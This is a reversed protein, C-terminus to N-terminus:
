IKGKEQKKKLERQAQPLRLYIPMLQNANLTQKDKVKKEALTACLYARQYKLHTTAVELNSIDDSLLKFAIDSGDGCLIIRKDKYSKLDEKLAEYSIARDECIRKINNDKTSNFIANYFQNCRADMVCCVICEVGLLNQAICEITSISICPKNLTWAMGKIASVGIRVGTFSGPGANVAFADISSIDTQTNKILSNCMDMLTTSHTLKTNIFFEGIINGNESIAVSAPSATSDIALIKM